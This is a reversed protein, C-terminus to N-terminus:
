KQSCTEGEKTLPVYPLKMWIAVHRPSIPARKTPIGTFSIAPQYLVYYAECYIQNM